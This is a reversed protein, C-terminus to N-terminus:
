LQYACGLPVVVGDRFLLRARGWEIDPSVMIIPLNRSSSWLDRKASHFEISRAISSGFLPSPYLLLDWKAWWSSRAPYRNAYIGGALSMVRPTSEMGSVVISMASISELTASHRGTNTLAVEYVAAHRDRALEVTAVATLDQSSEYSLAWRDKGSEQTQVLTWQLPSSGQLVSFGPGPALRTALAAPSVQALIDSFGSMKRERDM